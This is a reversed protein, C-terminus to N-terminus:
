SGCISKATELAERASDLTPAAAPYEGTFSLYQESTGPDLWLMVTARLPRLSEETEPALEIDPGCWVLSWSALEALDGRLPPEPGEPLGVEIVPGDGEEPFGVRPEYRWGGSQPAVALLREDLESLEEAFEGVRRRQEPPLCVTSGSGGVPACFWGDRSVARLIEGQGPAIITYAVAGALALAVGALVAQRGDRGFRFLAALVLALPFAVYLACFAWFATPKLGYLANNTLTSGAFEILTRCGGIDFAPLVYFAVAALPPAFWSPAVLGLAWGVACAAVITLAALLFPGWPAIGPWSGHWGAVALAAAAVVGFGALAPGCSGLIERGLWRAAGRGPLVLVLVVAGSRVTSVSLGACLGTLIPGYVISIGTVANLANAASWWVPEGGDILAFAGLGIGVPAPAWRAWNAASM